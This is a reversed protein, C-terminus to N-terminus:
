GHAPGIHTLCTCHDHFLYEEVIKGDKRRAATSYLVDFPKGTPQITTRDPQKPPQSRRNQASNGTQGSAPV